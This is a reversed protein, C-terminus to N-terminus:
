STMTIPPPWAPASAAAAAARMPADVASTVSRTGFRDARHGAIRRDAAKALAVEHALDVRQVADHAPHGVARANLEAQQVPALAGSHLARARLDVPPKYRSAICASSSACGPSSSSRLRLRRAAAPRRRRTAPDISASRADLQSPRAHDQRGAREQVAHDVDAVPPHRAAPHAIGGDRRSAACSASSPAAGPAASSPCEAAGPRGSSRSPAAPFGAPRRRDRRHKGEQVPRGSARCIEQPMVWVVSAVWWITRSM